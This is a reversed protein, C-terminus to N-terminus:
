PTGDDDRGVSADFLTVLNPHCLRALAQLEVDRRESTSIADTANRFVKVAGHRRLREDTAEFVDAVGGTGLRSLVRYRSALVWGSSDTPRTPATPPVPM